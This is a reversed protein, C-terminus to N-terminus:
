EARRGIGPTEFGGFRPTNPFPPHCSSVLPGFDCFGRTFTSKLAYHGGTPTGHPGCPEADAWQARHCEEEIRYGVLRGTGPTEFGGFRHTNRFRHHFAFVLPTFACFRSFFTSEIAYYGGTPKGGHEKPNRRNGRRGMKRTKGNDM